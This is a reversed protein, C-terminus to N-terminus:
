AKVFLAELEELRRGKTEPARARIYFLALACFVAYCALTAATSLHEVMMPFTYAVLFDALWLALTAVSMATARIRNPFVEALYVWTVAGLTCAFAAVYLLMLALVIYREFYGYHFCLAIAALMVGMIASGSLLLKRRGLKDVLAIAGFTAVLNVGGLALTQLLSSSADLGTKSFITPAYYLIANIGTVQQFVAILIGMVLVSRHDRDFLDRISAGTSADFSREILALDTGAGDSGLTKELITLAEPIRKRGALWRPTEPVALLCLGFVLAPLTQAAFMWRWGGPADVFAYNCFYALLIGFVIALQYLSVLRGRWAAPATESIYLPSVIAAAGVGVGGVLRFFIFTDLTDALGAGLGSVGFLIACAMLTLRRGFRDALKGAVLAGLACGVLISSVAWGLGYEDLSFLAQLSPIAGSIVATDFGFLLGGLAAVSSIALIFASNQVLRAM